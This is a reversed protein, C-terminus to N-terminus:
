CGGQPNLPFLDTQETSPFQIVMGACDWPAGRIIVDEGQAGIRKLDHTRQGSFPFELRRELRAADIIQQASASPLLDAVNSGYARERIANVDDVAEMLNLGLEANSEARILHMQTLTFLPVNFFEQQFMSTIYTINGDDDLEQYLSGRPTSVGFARMANYLEEQIRLTPNDLPFYNNRFEDNRQDITGNDLEASIVYFIAEPNIQNDLYTYRNVTTDLVFLGSTIVENALNYAEQYEQMQFRVEAELAIAAWKTAYVGNVNIDPLNEKAFAIDSLVQEYVAGLTPREANVIDSSTRIAVGPHSNDATYGYPQAWLRAADFHALARLFRAEAQIEAARDAPVEINDLNELVTNCRLSIIYLDNFVGSMTGNFISTSRLWISTYDDNNFPRVLNDGLLNALNQYGGDYTNAVVDYASNLLEELDTLSEIAESPLINQGDDPPTQELLDNCGVTAFGIFAFACIVKLTKSIQIKM